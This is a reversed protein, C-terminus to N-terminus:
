YTKRVNTMMLNKSFWVAVLWVSFNIPILISMKVTKSHQMCRQECEAWRRLDTKMGVAVEM